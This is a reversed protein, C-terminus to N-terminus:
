ALATRQKRWTHIEERGGVVREDKGLRVPGGRGSEHGGVGASTAGADVCVGDKRGNVGKVDACTAIIGGELGTRVLREGVEFGIDVGEAVDIGDVKANGGVSGDSGTAVGLVDILTSVHTDWCRM